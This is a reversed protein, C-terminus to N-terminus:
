FLYRDHHSELSHQKQEMPYYSPSPAAKRCMRPLRISCRPCIAPNNIYLDGHKIGQQRMMAAAHGEVHTKVLGDFGRTGLPIDAAPGEEGSKLWTDRNGTKFVGTTKGGEKYPPLQRTGGDGDQFLELQRKDRGREEAPKKVDPRTHEDARKERFKKDEHRPNSPHAPKKRGALPQLAPGGRLLDGLPSTGVAALQV